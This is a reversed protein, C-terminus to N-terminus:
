AVGGRAGMLRTQMCPHDFAAASGDYQWVEPRAHRNPQGASRPNVRALASTCRPDHPPVSRTRRRREQRARGPQRDVPTKNKQTPEHAASVAYGSSQRRRAKPIAKVNTDTGDSSRLRVHRTRSAATRCTPSSKSSEDGSISGNMFSSRPRRASIEVLASLLSLLSHM